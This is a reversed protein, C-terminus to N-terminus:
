FSFLIYLGLAFAILLGGVIPAPKWPTLDVAKADQQVYAESRSMGAFKALGLQLAILGVFVAGMYHFPSGFYSKVWGVYGSAENAGTFFTGLVM